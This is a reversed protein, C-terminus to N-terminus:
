DNGNKLIKIIIESRGRNEYYRVSEGNYYGCNWSGYGKAM